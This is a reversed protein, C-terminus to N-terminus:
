LAVATTISCNRAVTATVAVNANATQALAPAAAGLVLGGFILAGWVSRFM